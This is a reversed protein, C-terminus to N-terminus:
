QNSDDTSSGPYPGIGFIPVKIQTNDQEESLLTLQAIAQSHINKTCLVPFRKEAFMPSAIELLLTSADTKTEETSFLTNKLHMATTKHYLALNM